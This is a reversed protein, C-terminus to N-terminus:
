LKQLKRAKGASKAGGSCLCRRSPRLNAIAFGKEVLMACYRDIAHHPVGSMPVRGIEKGAQISTLVLELQESVTCADQFFVEFFDGVRYLLLAHPYQEKIEVYHQM